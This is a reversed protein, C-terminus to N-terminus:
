RNNSIILVEKKSSPAYTFQLQKDIFVSWFIHPAAGIVAGPTCQSMRGEIQQPTLGPKELRPSSLNDVQWRDPFSLESKENDYWFRSPVNITKM